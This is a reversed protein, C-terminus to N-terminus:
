SSLAVVQQNLKQIQMAMDVLLKHIMGPNSRILTKFQDSPVKVVSCRTKARVTASRRSETLVAMAGLIEGEQIEGVVIGNVLVDASGEFLSFAADAEDGQHIIIDGPQFYIFGPTTKTDSDSHAALLRLLLTQQLMLLRLWQRMKKSDALLETMLLLTDFGLLLVSADAYYSIEDLHGGADPLILDGEDWTVPRRNQCRTGLMGGKILYVRNANMGHHFTNDCPPLSLMEGQLEIAAFLDSVHQKYLHLLSSFSSGTEALSLM